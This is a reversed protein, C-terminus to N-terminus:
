RATVPWLREATTAIAFSEAVAIVAWFLLELAILPWPEGFQNFPTFFEWFAFTMVFRLGALRWARPAIGAPWAAALLRYIVAQAFAFVFLGAIIVGPKSVVLPLPELQTWVAILKASQHDPNLLIGDGRVGFGIWRFTLLMAINFATWGAAATALMKLFCKM